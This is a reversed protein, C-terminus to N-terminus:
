LQPESSAEHRRVNLLELKRPAITLHQRSSNMQRGDLRKGARDERVAEGARLFASGRSVDAGREGVFANGRQSEVEGPEALTFILEATRGERVVHVVDDRCRIGESVGISRWRKENSM